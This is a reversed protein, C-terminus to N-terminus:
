ARGGEVKGERERKREKERKKWIIGCSHVRDVCHVLAMLQHEMNRGHEGVRLLILLLHTRANAKIHTQRQILTHKCTNSHRDTHRQKLTHSTHIWQMLTCLQFEPFFPPLGNVLIFLSLSISLCLSVIM